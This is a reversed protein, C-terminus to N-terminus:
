TFLSRKEVQVRVKGPLACRVRLARCPLLHVKVDTVMFSPISSTISQSFIIGATSADPELGRSLSIAEVFFPTPSGAPTFTGEIQLGVQCEYQDFYFLGALGSPPASYEYRCGVIISPDLGGALSGTSPVTLAGIPEAWV